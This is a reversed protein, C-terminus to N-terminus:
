VLEGGEIIQDARKEAGAVRLEGGGCSCGGTAPLRMVHAPDLEEVDELGRHEDFAEGITRLLRAREGRQREELRVERVPDLPRLELKVLRLLDHELSGDGFLAVL